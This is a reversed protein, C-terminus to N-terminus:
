RGSTDLGRTLPEISLHLMPNVGEGNFTNGMLRTIACPGGAPFMRSLLGITFMTGNPRHREIAFGTTADAVAAANPTRVGM